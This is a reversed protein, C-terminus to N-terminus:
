DRERRVQLREPIRNGLDRDAIIIGAMMDDREGDRRRKM